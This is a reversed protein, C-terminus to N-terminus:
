KYIQWDEAFIDDNSPTYIFRNIYDDKIGIEEYLMHPKSMPSSSRVRVSGGFKAWAERRIRFGDYRAKEFAEGFSMLDTVRSM